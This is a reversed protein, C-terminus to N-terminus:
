DKFCLFEISVAATDAKAYLASTARFLCFEGPKLKMSMADGDASVKVKGLEVYNTDDLNQVFWWGQTGIENSVSIAEETTGIEQTGHTYDSGSMSIYKDRLKTTVSRLYDTTPNYDIAARIHLENTAM